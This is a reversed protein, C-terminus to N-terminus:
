FGPIGRGAGVLDEEPSAPRALAVEPRVEEVVARLLTGRRALPDGLPIRVRLYRETFGEAYRGADEGGGSAPGEVLVEVMTGLFAQKYELALERELGALARARRGIEAPPVAGALRASRTGERASFPFVHIKAFEAERCLDLTNGFAEETEGPHGVIVDTTVSPRDFRARLLRVTARFDDRTYDRRMLRLVGDDGSQLPIHWHPCFLPDRLLEVM